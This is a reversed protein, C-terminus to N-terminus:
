ARSIALSAAAESAHANPAAHQKAFLPAFHARHLIALGIEAAVVLVAVVLMGPATGALYLRFALIQVIVPALVLLALGMYRRTILLVGAALQVACLLPLFYGAAAFGQMLMAAGPTSPPPLRDLIFGLGSGVFVVGLALELARLPASARISRAEFIGAFASRHQWALWGGAVGIMVVVPIGAPALLLHFLAIHLAIPSLVLLGLPVTRRSALLAAAAMEVAGLLPIFYGTQVLGLMFESAAGDLPPPTIFDLLKNAGSVGFLLGLAIRAAVGTVINRNM